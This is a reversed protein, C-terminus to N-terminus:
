AAERTPPGTAMVTGGPLAIRLSRDTELTLEWGGGHVLHHHRSCLPLLNALDTRGGHRFWVVHHIDCDHFRTSCGPVACTAYLARLVRRQARNALRTTRGLDLTGPAHLVVGNRVVIVDIDADDFLDRVVREPLEVPLGWDIVPGNSPRADVVVSVNPRGMTVGGGEVMALMGLARLFDQKEIPDTPCWPPTTEAFRAELMARLASDIRTGTEPDFRGFMCWMGSEKDTWTRLRTNRKQQQLRSEGGDRQLRRVESRVTKAFDTPTAHQAILLLRASQQALAAREPPELQRLCTTVVDLHEASVTGNSLADDFGPMAAGTVARTAIRDASRLDTRSAEAFAVEPAPTLTELARHLAMQQAHCWAVLAAVARVADVVDDHNAHNATSIQEVLAVPSGSSM